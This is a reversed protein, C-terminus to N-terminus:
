DTDFWFLILNFILIFFFWKTNFAFGRFWSGHKALGKGQLQRLEARKSSILCNYVLPMKLRTFIWESLCCATSSPVECVSTFNFVQKDRGTVRLSYRGGACGTLPPHWGAVEDALFHILNFKFIVALKSPANMGTWVPHIITLFAQIEHKLFVTKQIQSRLLALLVAVHFSYCAKCILCKLFFVPEVCLIQQCLELWLISPEFFGIIIQLWRLLPKRSRKYPFVWASSTFLQNVNQNKHISLITM